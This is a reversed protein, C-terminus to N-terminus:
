ISKYSKLSSLSGRMPMIFCGQLRLLLDCHFPLATRRDLYAPSVTMWSLAQLEPAVSELILRTEIEFDRIESCLGRGYKISGRSIRKQCWSDMAYHFLQAKVMYFIPWLHLDAILCTPLQLPTPSLYRM